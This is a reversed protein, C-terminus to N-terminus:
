GVRTFRGREEDVNRIKAVRAVRDPMFQRMWSNPKGFFEYFPRGTADYRTVEKLEGDPINTPHRAEQRAAEQIQREVFNFNNKDRLDRLNVNEFGRAYPQVIPLARSRYQDPHEDPFPVPAPRNFAGLIEQYEARADQVGKEKEGYTLYAM